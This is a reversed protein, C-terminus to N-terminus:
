RAGRRSPRPPPTRSRAGSCGPSRHLRVPRRSRREHLVRHLARQRRRLLDRDQLEHRSRRARDELRGLLRARRDHVPECLLRRGSPMAGGFARRRRLQREDRLARVRQRPQESQRRGAPRGRVALAHGAHHTTEAPATFVHLERGDGLSDARPGPELRQRSATPAAASATHPAYAAPDDPTPPHVSTSPSSQGAGRTTSRRAGPPTVPSSTTRGASAAPVGVAATALVVLAGVVGRM